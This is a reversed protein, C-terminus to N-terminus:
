HATIDARCSQCRGTCSRDRQGLHAPAPPNVHRSARKRRTLYCFWLLVQAPERCHPRHTAASRIGHHANGHHRCSSPLFATVDTPSYDTVTFLPSEAATTTATFPYVAFNNELPRHSPLKGDHWKAAKESCPEKGKEAVNDRKGTPSTKASCRTRVTM